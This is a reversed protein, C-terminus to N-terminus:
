ESTSASASVQDVAPPTSWHSRDGAPSWSFRSFGKVPTFDVKLPRGRSQGTRWIWLQQAGPRTWTRQTFNRIGHVSEDYVIGQRDILAKQEASPPEATAFLIRTGDPSWAYDFVGTPHEFLPRPAGGDLPIRWLAVSGPRSLTATLASNDPTWDLAGIFSERLLMQPPSGPSVTWLEVKSSNELLSAQRVLFAVTKGDPSL